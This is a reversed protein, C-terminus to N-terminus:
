HKNNWWAFVDSTEEKIRKEDDKKNMVQAAVERAIYRKFRSDYFVCM